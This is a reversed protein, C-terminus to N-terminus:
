LFVTFYDWLKKFEWVGLYSVTYKETSESSRGILNGGWENAQEVASKRLM